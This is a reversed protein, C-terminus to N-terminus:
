YLKSVNQCQEMSWNNSKAKMVLKLIEARKYTKQLHM